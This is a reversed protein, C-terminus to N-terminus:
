WYTMGGPNGVDTRHSISRIKLGISDMERMLCILVWRTIPPTQTGIREVNSRSPEGSDSKESILPVGSSLKRLQPGLARCAQGKGAYFGLLGVGRLCKGVRVLLFSHQKQLGSGLERIVYAKTDV